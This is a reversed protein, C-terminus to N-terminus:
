ATRVISLSNRGEGLAVGPMDPLAFQMFGEHNTWHRRFMTCGHARKKFRESADADEIGGILVPYGVYVVAEDRVRELAESADAVSIVAISSKGPWAALMRATDATVGLVTNNAAPAPADPRQGKWHDFEHPLMARASAM